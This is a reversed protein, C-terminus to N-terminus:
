NVKFINDHLKRLYSPSESYGLKEAVRTWTAEEFYKARFINRLLVTNLKGIFEEIENKENLVELYKQHYNYAALDIEAVIDEIIKQNSTKPIGNINRNLSAKKKDLKKWVDMLDQLEHELQIYAKLRERTM